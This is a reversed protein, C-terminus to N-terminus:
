IEVNSTRSFSYFTDIPKVANELCINVWLAILSLRLETTPMWQALSIWSYIVTGYNNNNYNNKSNNNKIIITIMKIIMIMKMSHRKLSYVPNVHDLQWTPTTRRSSRGSTQKRWVACRVADHQSSSSLVFKTSMFVPRCDILDPFYGQHLSGLRHPLFMCEVFARKTNSIQLNLQWGPSDRQQM